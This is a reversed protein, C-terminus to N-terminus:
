FVPHAAGALSPMEKERFKLSQTFSVFKLPFLKYIRTKTQHYLEVGPGRTIVREVVSSYEWTGSSKLMLVSCTILCSFHNRCLSKFLACHVSLFLRAPRNRSIGCLPTRNETLTGIGRAQEPEGACCGESGKGQFRFENGKLKM